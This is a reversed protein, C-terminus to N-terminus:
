LVDRKEQHRNFYFVAYSCSLTAKLNNEKLHDYLVDMMEKAIGEGRRSPHTYTHTINVKNADVKPFSIYAVMKNDELLYLLQNEILIMTLFEENRKKM